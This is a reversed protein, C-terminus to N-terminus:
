VEAGEPGARRGHSKGWHVALGLWSACWKDCKRCKVRGNFLEEGVESLRM